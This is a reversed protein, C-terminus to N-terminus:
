KIKKKKKKLNLILNEYSINDVPNLYIVKNFKLYNKINLYFLNWSMNFKKNVEIYNRDRELKDRKLRRRLCIGKEEECVINITKNYNLDLRHSFIGEIILFQDDCSYNIKINSPSSHKRRFDYDFFSVIKEKKYISNITKNIENYKISILRDYIDNQFISFFRIFINDRYYSDTKLVISGQFLDELKKTLRSKGSGSPGTIIITIM